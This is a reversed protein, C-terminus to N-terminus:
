SKVPDDLKNYYPNIPEVVTSSLKNLNNKIRDLERDRIDNAVQKTIDEIKECNEKICCIRLDGDAIFQEITIKKTRYRMTNSKYKDWEPSEFLRIFLYSDGNWIHDIKQVIEFLMEDSCNELFKKIMSIKPCNYSYYSDIHMLNYRMYNYLQVHIKPFYQERFIRNEFLIKWVDVNSQKIIDLFNIKLLQEVEKLDDSKKSSVCSGM